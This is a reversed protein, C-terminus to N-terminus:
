CNGLRGSPRLFEGCDNLLELEVVAGPGLEVGVVGCRVLVEPRRRGNQGLQGEHVGDLIPPVVAVVADPGDLLRQRLQLHLAPQTRVARRQVCVLRVKYDLSLSQM